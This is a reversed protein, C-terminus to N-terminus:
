PRARTRPDLFTIPPIDSTLDDYLDRWQPNSKEILELKWARHWRKVRQEHAYAAGIDDHAQFWVLRSGGYKRTFGCFVGERHEIVRRALGRTSGTYLTGNRGSALIYTWASAERM